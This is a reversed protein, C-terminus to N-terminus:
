AWHCKAAAIISRSSNSLSAVELLAEKDGRPIDTGGPSQRRGRHGGACLGLSRIAPQAPHFVAIVADRLKYANSDCTGTVGIPVPKGIRLWAM